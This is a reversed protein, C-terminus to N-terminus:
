KIAQLMKQCALEKNEASLTINKKDATILVLEPPMWRLFYGKQMTQQLRECTSLPWWQFIMAVALLVLTVAGLPLAAKKNQIM